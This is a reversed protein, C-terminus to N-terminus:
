SMTIKLECSVLRVSNGKLILPFILHGDHITHSVKDSCTFDTVKSNGLPYKMVVSIDSDITNTVESEISIQKKRREISVKRVAVPEEKELVGEVSVKNQYTVVPSSGSHLVVESESTTDRVFSRGIFTGEDYILVNSSAIPVPAEFHFELESIGEGSMMSVVYVKEVEVKNPPFSTEKKSDVTMNGVKYVILDEPNVDSFDSTPASETASRLAMYGHKPANTDGSFLMLNGDIRSDTRNEIIAGLTLYSTEGIDLKATPRWSIGSKMYSVTGNFAELILLEDDVKPKTRMVIDPDHYTTVIGEATEVTVSSDGEYIVTGYTSLTGKMVTATKKHMPRSIHFPVPKGNNDLAHISGEVVGEPLKLANGDATVKKKLITFSPYVRYETM